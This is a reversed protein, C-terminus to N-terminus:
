KPKRKAKPLRIVLEGNIIVELKDGPNIGYYRLWAKPLTIVCSGQGLNIVSREFLTPM